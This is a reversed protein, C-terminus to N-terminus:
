IIDYAKEIAMVNKECNEKGIKEQFIKRFEEIVSELKVAESVKVFKGLIVTNPRPQGIIEMSIGSADAPYIKGEFKGGKKAIDERVQHDNKKTNIILAENRDLHDTVSQSDLLTDDLVVVVDPDVVPEHTRIAGDSVGFRRALAQPTESGQAEKIQRVEYETLRSAWMREGRVSTGHRIRDKQNESVTAWRLHRPNVCLRNGCSHAAEIRGRQLPPPGHVMECLMRNATLAKGARYVAGYGASHRGFPWELCNDDGHVMAVERLFRM